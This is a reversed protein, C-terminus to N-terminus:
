RCSEPITAWCTRVINRRRNSRGHPQMTARALQPRLLPGLLTQQRRLQEMIQRSGNTLTTFGFIGEQRDPNSYGILSLKASGSKFSSVTCVGVFLGDLEPSRHASTAAFAQTRKIPFKPAPFVVSAFPIM